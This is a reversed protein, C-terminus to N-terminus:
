IWINLCLAEDKDYLGEFRKVQSELEEGSITHIDSRPYFSWRGNQNIMVVLSVVDDCDDLIEEVTVGFGCDIKDQIKKNYNLIWM